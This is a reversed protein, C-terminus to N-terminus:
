KLKRVHLRDDQYDIHYDEGIFDPDETLIWFNLGKVEEQTYGLITNITESCFTVERKILQKNM